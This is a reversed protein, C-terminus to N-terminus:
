PSTGPGTYGGQFQGPGARTLGRVAYNQRVKCAAAASRDRRGIIDCGRRGLRSLNLQQTRHLRNSLTLESCSLMVLRLIIRVIGLAIPGPSRFPWGLRPKQEDRNRMRLQLAAEPTLIGLVPKSYIPNAPHQPDLLEM